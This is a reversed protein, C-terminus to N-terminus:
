NTMLFLMRGTFFQPILHQATPMTIQRNCPTSKAKLAKVSNTPSLFPMWGTFFILPPTSAHNDTKLSTCVHM